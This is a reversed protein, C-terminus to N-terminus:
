DGEWPFKGTNLYRVIMELNKPDSFVQKNAELATPKSDLLFGNLANMYSKYRSVGSKTLRRLRLLHKRLLNTSNPGVVDVLGWTHAQSASIPQTMLTMYHAKSIGIRRVLFPLVCAPMLGFLLESLSFQAKEECLVVDCAAVFGVGGANVKGQIHAITIYSGSALRLWLNYLPEPDELEQNGGNLSERIGDFDAGFCFVEPLGELVLIKISNECADLVEACERILCDNITNNADPRYFQLYCIDDEYRVRITKYSTKQLETTVNLSDM